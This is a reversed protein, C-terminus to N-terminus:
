CFRGVIWALSGVMEGGEGREEGGALGGREGVM